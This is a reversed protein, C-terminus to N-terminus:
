GGVEEERKGNRVRGSASRRVVNMKEGKCYSVRKTVAGRGTESCEVRVCLDPVTFKM